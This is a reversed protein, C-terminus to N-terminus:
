LMQDRNLIELDFDVIAATAIAKEISKACYGGGSEDRAKRSPYRLALSIESM